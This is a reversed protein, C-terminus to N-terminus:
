VGCVRGALWINLCGSLQQEETQTTGAEEAIAAAALFRRRRHLDSHEEWSPNPTEIQPKPNLPSLPSSTCPRWLSPTVSLPHTSTTRSLDKRALLNQSGQLRYSM